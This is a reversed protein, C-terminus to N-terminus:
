DREIETTQRKQIKAVRERDSMLTRKTPKIHPGLQQIMSRFYSLDYVNDQKSLDLIDKITLM